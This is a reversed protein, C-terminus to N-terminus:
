RNSDQGLNFLYSQSGTRNTQDLATANYTGGIGLTARADSDRNVTFGSDIYYPEYQYEANRAGDLTVTKNVLYRGADHVRAQLTRKVYIQMAVAAAIVLGILIAYEATSQGKLRKNMKQLMKKALV